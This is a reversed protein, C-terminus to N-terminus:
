VASPETALILLDIKALRAAVETMQPITVGAAAALRDVTLPGAELAELMRDIIEPAVRWLSLLPEAILARYSEPTAGPARAVITTTAV